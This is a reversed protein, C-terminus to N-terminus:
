SLWPPISNWAPEGEPNEAIRDVVALDAESMRQDAKTSQRWSDWPSTERHNVSLHDRYVNVRVFWMGTADGHGCASPDIRGSRCSRWAEGATIFRNSPIDLTDFDIKSYYRRQLEDIQPDVRVWRTEPVSWYECIWHDSWPSGRLYAGFGCRVRAAIGKVRLFGCLM